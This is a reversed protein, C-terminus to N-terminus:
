KYSHSIDLVYLMINFEFLSPFPCQMSVWEISSGMCFSEARSLPDM